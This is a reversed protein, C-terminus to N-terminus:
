SSSTISVFVVCCIIIENRVQLEALEAELKRQLQQLLVAEKKLGELAETAHHYLYPQHVLGSSDSPDQTVRQSM